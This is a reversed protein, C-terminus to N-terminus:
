PYLVPTFMSYFHCPFLFTYIDACSSFQSLYIFSYKLRLRSSEMRMGISEVPIGTSEQPNWRFEVPIVPNRCSDQLFLHPVTFYQAISDHMVVNNYPIHDSDPQPTSISPQTVDINVRSSINMPTPDIHLINSVSLIALNNILAKALTTPTEQGSFPQPCSSADNTPAPSECNNAPINASIVTSLSDNIVITAPFSLGSPM